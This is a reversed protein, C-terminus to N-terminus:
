HAMKRLKQEFRNEFRVPESQKSPKTGGGATSPESAGFEELLKELESIRTDRQKILHKMHGYAAARNRMASHLQVAEKRQEPTMRPDNPNMAFAKDMLAYGKELIKKGEPDTDAAKLYPAENPDALIQQNSSSWTESLEKRLEAQKAEFQERQQKEREGGKERAEKLAQQQKEFQEKIKERHSMASTAFEGFTEKAFELAKGLPLNILALMDDATAPRVAGSVPDTVTIEALDSTARKWAENYPKAYKEQFEPHKEFRTFRIEDEYEKLRKETDALRKQLEEIQAQPPAGPRVKHLEAEATEAKTQWEKTSKKYQEVLKWPSVKKGKGEDTKPADQPKGEEGEKPLGTDPVVTGDSAANADDTPQVDSSKPKPRTEGPDPIVTENTTTPKPAPKGSLRAKMRGAVADFAPNPSRFSSPKAGTAPAGQAVQSDANAQPTAPAPPALTEPM